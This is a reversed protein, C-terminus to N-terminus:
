YYKGIDKPTSVKWFRFASMPKNKRKSMREAVQELTASRSSYMVDISQNDQAMPFFYINVRTLYVEISPEGTTSEEGFRVIERGGYRSCFFDWLEENLLTYNEDERLGDKLNVNLHIQNPDSVVQAEPDEIIDENNCPGPYSDEMDTDGDWGIYAKWKNFWTISMVYWKSGPKVEMKITEYEQLLRKAEECEASLEEGTRIKPQTGKKFQKYVMEYDVMSQIWHKRNTDSLNRQYTQM